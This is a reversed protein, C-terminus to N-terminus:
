GKICSYATIWKIKVISNTGDSEGARVNTRVKFDKTTTKTLNLKPTNNDM